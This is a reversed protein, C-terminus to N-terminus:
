KIDKELKQIELDIRAAISNYARLLNEKQGELKGIETKLFDERAKHQEFWKQRDADSTRIKGEKFEPKIKQHESLLAKGKKLFQEIQVVNVDLKEKELRKEDTLRAIKSMIASNHSSYDENPKEPEVITLPLEKVEEKPKPKELEDLLSDIKDQYEKNKSKSSSLTENLDTVEEELRLSEEKLKPIEQFQLQIAWALALITTITLLTKM